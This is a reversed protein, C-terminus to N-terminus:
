RQAVDPIANFAEIAANYRAVVRGPSGPVQAENQGGLNMREGLTFPRRRRVRTALEKAAADLPDLARLYAAFGKSESPHEDCWRAFAGRAEDFRAEAADLAPLEIKALEASGARMVGKALVVTRRLHWAGRQAPDDPNRALRALDRADLADQEADLAAALAADAQKFAAFAAVLDAHMARGRACADEKHEGQEYYLSAANVLPVLGEAAKAFAEAAEDLAPTSTALAAAIQVAKRCAKPDAGIAYLGLVNRERGTPGKAKDGIWGVYRNWSQLARTSFPNRCGRVLGDLKRSLLADVDLVSALAQGPGGGGAAGSAAGPAEIRDAVRRAIAALPRRDDDDDPMAGRQLKCACAGIVLAALCARRAGKAIWGPPGERARRLM